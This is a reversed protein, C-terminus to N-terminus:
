TKSIDTKISRLLFVEGLVALSMFIILIRLDAAAIGDVLFLLGYGATLGFVIGFWERMVFYEIRHNKYDPISHLLNESIVRKPIRNFVGSVEKAIGFLVYTLFLPFLTLSIISCFMLVGSITLMTKYHRYSVHRGVAVSVFISVGAFFSLWGGLDLENQLLDFMLLPLLVRSLVGNHSLWSLLIGFMSKRVDKNKWILKWSKRLHFSSTKHIPLDINGVAFSIVFLFTGLLFINAYGLGFYNATIIFGGLVPMLIGVFIKSANELGAYNGRNGMTTLDFRVTQYGIWYMGNFFGLFMGLYNVYDITKDGLVYMVLYVVTFGLLSLRRAFHFKSKKVIPAFVLFSLAHFLFYAINFSAVLKIDNTVKWIYISLFVEVFVRGANFLGHSILLRKIKPEDIKNM